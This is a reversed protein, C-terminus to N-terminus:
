NELTLWKKFSLYYPNNFYILASFCGRGLALCEDEQAYCIFCFSVTLSQLGKTKKSVISYVSELGKGASM